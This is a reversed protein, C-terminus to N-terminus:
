WKLKNKMELLNNAIQFYLQDSTQIEEGFSNKFIDSIKQALEKQNLENKLLIVIKGIETHYEDDPAGGHVLGIPDNENIIKEVNKFIIKYKNM